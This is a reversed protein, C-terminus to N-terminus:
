CECRTANVQFTAYLHEWLRDADANDVCLLVAVPWSGDVTQTAMMADAAEQGRRQDRFWRIHPLGMALGRPTDVTRTTVGCGVTELM